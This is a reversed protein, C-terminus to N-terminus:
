QDPPIGETDYIKWKIESISNYSDVSLTVTKGTM